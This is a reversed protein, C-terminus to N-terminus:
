GAKRDDPQHKLKEVCLRAIEQALVKIKDRDHEVKALDCLQRLRNDIDDTM